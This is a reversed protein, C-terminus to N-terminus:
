GPHACIPIEEIGALAAPLGAVAIQHLAHRDTASRQCSAPMPTLRGAMAYVMRSLNHLTNRESVGPYPTPTRGPRSSTRRGTILSTPDSRPAADLTTDIKDVGRRHVHVAARLLDQAPQEAAPTLLHKRVVFTCLPRSGSSMRELMSSLRPPKLRVVDVQVQQVPRQLAHARNLDHSRQVAHHLVAFCSVHPHELKGAQSSACQLAM